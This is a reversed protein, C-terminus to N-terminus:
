GMTVRVNPIRRGQLVPHHIPSKKGRDSKVCGHSQIIINQVLAEDLCLLRRLTKGRVALSNEETTSSMMALVTNKWMCFSEEDESFLTGEVVCSEANASVVYDVCKRNMKRERGGDPRCMRMEMQVIGCFNCMKMLWKMLLPIMVDHAYGM